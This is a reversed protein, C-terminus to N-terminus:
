RMAKLQEHVAAAGAPQEAVSFVAVAVAANVLLVVPLLYLITPVLRYTWGRAADSIRTTLNLERRLAAEIEEARQVAGILLATYYFRDLLYIVFLIVGGAFLVPAAIFFQNQDTANLESRLVREVLYATWGLLSVCTFGLILLEYPDLKLRRRVEEPNPAWKWARWGILFFFVSGGFSFLILGLWPFELNPAVGALSSGATIATGILPVAFVRIQMILGDFHVATDRAKGWEMEWRKPTENSAAHLRGSM